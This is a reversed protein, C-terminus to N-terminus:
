RVKIGIASHVFLYELCKDYNENDVWLYNIPKQSSVIVFVEAIQCNVKYFQEKWDLPKLETVGIGEQKWIFTIPRKCSPTDHGKLEFFKLTVARCIFDNNKIFCTSM